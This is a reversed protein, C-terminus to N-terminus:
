KRQNRKKPRDDNKTEGTKNKRGRTPKVELCSECNVDDWKRAYATSESPEDGCLPSKTERNRYHKVGGDTKEGPIFPIASEPIEGVNPILENM